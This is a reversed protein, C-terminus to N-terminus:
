ACFHITVPFQLSLVYVVRCYLTPHSTASRPVHCSRPLRAAITPWMLYPGDVHSSIFCLFRGDFGCLIPACLGSPGGQLGRGSIRISPSVKVLFYNMTILTHYGLLEYLYCWDTRNHTNVVGCVCVCVHACVVGRCFIPAVSRTMKSPRNTCGSIKQTAMGVTPM